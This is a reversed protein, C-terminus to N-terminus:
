INVGFNIHIFNTIKVNNIDLINLRPAPPVPHPPSIIFRQELEHKLGCNTRYNKDPEKTALLDPPKV